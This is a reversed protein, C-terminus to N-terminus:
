VWALADGPTTAAPAVLVAYGLIRTAPEYSTSVCRLATRSAKSRLGPAVRARACRRRRDPRDPRTM